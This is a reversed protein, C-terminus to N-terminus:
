FAFCLTLFKQWAFIKKGLKQQSTESSESKKKMLEKIFRFQTQLKVILTSYTQVHRLKRDKNLDFLLHLLSYITYTGLIITIKDISKFYEESFKFKFKSINRLQLIIDNVRGNFFNNIGNPLFNSNESANRHSICSIKLLSILKVFQQNFVDDTKKKMIQEALLIFNEKDQSTMNECIQRPDEQMRESILTLENTLFSQLEAPTSLSNNRFLNNIFLRIQENIRLNLNNQFDITIFEPLFKDLKKSTSSVAITSGVNIRVDKQFLSKFYNSYTEITTSVFSGDNNILSSSSTSSDPMAVQNDDFNSLENAHQLQFNIFDEDLLIQEYNDLIVVRDFMAQLKVIKLKNNVELKKIFNNLLSVIGKFNEMFEEKTNVSVFDRMQFYKSEVLKFLEDTIKKVDNLEDSNKVDAQLVNNLFYTYSAVVFDLLAKKDTDFKGALLNKLIEKAEGGIANIFTSNRGLCTNITDSLVVLDRQLPAIKSDNNQTSDITSFREAFLQTLETTTNTSFNLGLSNSHLVNFNRNNDIVSSNQNEVTGNTRTTPVAVFIGLLSVM